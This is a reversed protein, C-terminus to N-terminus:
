QRVQPRQHLLDGSDGPAEAQPDQLQRDQHFEPPVRLQLLSEQAIRQFFPASVDGGYHSGKPEDIQVLITLRPHPLPAFGIFSSVYKSPSYRGDVIKQATAPGIGPLTELEAADARNIDLSQLKNWGTWTWDALVEM